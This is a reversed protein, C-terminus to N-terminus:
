FHYYYQFNFGSGTFEDDIQSDDVGFTLEHQEQHFGIGFGGSTGSGLSTKNLGLDVYILFGSDFAWQPRIKLFLPTTNAGPMDRSSSINTNGVGVILKLYKGFQYGGRLDFTQGSNKDGGGGDGDEYKSINVGTGVFWASTTADAQVKTSLTLIAAAIFLRIRFPGM